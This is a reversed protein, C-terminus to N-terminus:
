LCCRVFKTFPKSDFNSRFETGFNGFTCSGLHFLVKPLVIEKNRFLLKFCYNTFGNLCCSFLGLYGTLSKQCTELQDLLHPLLQGMTEDGTCCEVANPTEHARLM